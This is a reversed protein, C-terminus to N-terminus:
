ILSPYRQTLLAPGVQNPAEIPTINQGDFHFWYGEGQPAGHPEWSSSYGEVALFHAINQVFFTDVNRERAQKHLDPNARIKLLAVEANFVPAPPEAPEFDASVEFIAPGQRRQQVMRHLADGKLVADPDRPGTPTATPVLAPGVAPTDTPTNAPVFEQNEM